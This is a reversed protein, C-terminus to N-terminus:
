QGHPASWYYELIFLDNIWFIKVIIGNFCVWYQYCKLIKPYKEVFVIFDDAEHGCYKCMGSM